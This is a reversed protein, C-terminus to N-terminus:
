QYVKMLQTRRVQKNAPLVNATGTETDFEVTIQDGSDIWKKLKERAYACYPAENERIEEDELQLSTMYEYVSWMIGDALGEEDGLILKIKM